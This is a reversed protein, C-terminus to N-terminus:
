CCYGSIPDKCQIARNIPRDDTQAEWEEMAVPCIIGRRKGKIELNHEKVGVIKSVIRLTVKEKIEIFNSQVQTSEELQKSSTIDM